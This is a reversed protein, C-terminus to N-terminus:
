RRIIVRQLVEVTGGGGGGALLLRGVAVAAAGLLMLVYGTIASVIFYGAVLLGALLTLGGLAILIPRRWRPAPRRLRQVRVSYGGPWGRVESWDGVTAIEGRREAQRVRSLLRYKTDTWTEMPTTEPPAIRATGITM